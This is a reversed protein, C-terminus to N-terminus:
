EFLMWHRVANKGVVLITQSPATVTLKQANNDLVILEAASLTVVGPTADDKVKLTFKLATGNAAIATLPNRLLAALATQSAVKSARSAQVLTAGDAKLAAGELWGVEGLKLGDFALASQVAAVGDGSLRLEVDITEGAAVLTKGPVLAATLTAPALGPKNYVPLIGGRSTGYYRCVWVLDFFNIAGDGNVDYLADYGAQGSLTNLHLLLNAIDVLDVQNDGNFDGPLPSGSGIAFPGEIDTVTADANSTLRLYCTSSDVAPTHWAFTNHGAANPASAAVTQWQYAGTATSLEIKVTAGANESDWAITTDGSKPLGATGALPQTINIGKAATEWFDAVQNANADAALLAAEAGSLVRDFVIVDDIPGSFPDIAAAGDSDIGIATGYYLGSWLIAGASATEASLTGNIYIRTSTADMTALVHTWQGLPVPQISQAANGPTNAGRGASFAIKGDPRLELRLDTYYARRAILVATASPQTGSPYQSPKIWASISLAAMQPLDPLTIRSAGALGSVGRYAFAGGFRGTAPDTNVATGHKLNGSYDNADGDCPYYRVM